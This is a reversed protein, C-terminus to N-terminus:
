LRWSLGDDITLHMSAVMRYWSGSPLSVRARRGDGLMQCLRNWAAPAIATADRRSSSPLAHLTLEAVGSPLAARIDPDVVFKGSVWTEELQRDVVPAV